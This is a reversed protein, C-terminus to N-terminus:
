NENQEVATVTGDSEVKFIVREDDRWTGSGSRAEGRKMTRCRWEHKDNITIRATRGFLKSLWTAENFIGIPM